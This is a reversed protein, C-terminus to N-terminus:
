QTINGDLQHNNIKLDMDVFLEADQQKFL